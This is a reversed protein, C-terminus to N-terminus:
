FNPFLDNANRLFLSLVRDLCSTVGVVTNYNFIIVAFNKIRLILVCGQKEKFGNLFYQTM